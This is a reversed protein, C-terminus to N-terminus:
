MSYEKRGSTGLMGDRRKGSGYEGDLSMSTMNRGDSGGSVLGGVSRNGTHPGSFSDSVGVAVRYNYKSTGQKGKGREQNLYQVLDNKQEM